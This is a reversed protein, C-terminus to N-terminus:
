NTQPIKGLENIAARSIATRTSTSLPQLMKRAEAPNSKAILTAMEITAEEKSVVATPHDIVYQLLEQAEKIKGDGAYAQALSIRALSAYEKSGSDVVDKYLREAEAINGKDAAAGALRIQAISGEDTGHYKSALDTFAKNWAKDKEDQTAYNMNPPQPTSGVTAADIKLAAAMDETRVTAAHNRYIVFAVILVVVALGIAAYKKTESSHETLFEFGTGVKEAFKDHKLDKRTLQAV